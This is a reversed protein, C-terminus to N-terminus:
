TPATSRFRSARPGSSAATAGASGASPPRAASAGCDLRGALVEDAAVARAVAVPTGHVPDVQEPALPSLGDLALLGRLLAVRLGAATLAAREESRRQGRDGAPDGGRVAARAASRGGSCPWSARRSCCWPSRSSSCGSAEPPRPRPLVPLPAARAVGAPRGCWPRGGVEPWVVAPPPHPPRGRRGGRPGPAAPPGAGSGATELAAAVERASQPRRAPEKELLQDVLDSLQAPIAPHSRACRRRGTPASGRDADRAGLEGRLPAPREAIEYLLLGLSFLDSRADLPLGRAQEPSMSRFTGVVRQDATLAAEGELRKALGFDLIKAHGEPTVMVNEPKLDRHILGKAHAAALGDAIERGLRM